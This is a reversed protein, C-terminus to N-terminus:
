AFRCIGVAHGDAVSCDLSIKHEDNNPLYGTFIFHWRYKASELFDGPHRFICTIICLRTGYYHLSNDRPIGSKETRRKGSLFGTWSQRPTGGGSRRGLRPQYERKADCNNTQSSRTGVGCRRNEAHKGGVFDADPVEVRFSADVIGFGSVNGGGAPSNKM